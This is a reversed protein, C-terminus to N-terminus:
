VHCKSKSYMWRGERLNAESLSPASTRVVIETQCILSTEFVNTVVQPTKPIKRIKKRTDKWEKSNEPKKKRVTKRLWLDFLKSALWVILPWCRWQLSPIQIKPPLSHQQSNKLPFNLRDFCLAHFGWSIEMSFPPNTPKSCWWWWRIVTCAPNKLLDMHSHSQNSSPLHQPTLLQLNWALDSM